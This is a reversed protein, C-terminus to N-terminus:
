VEKFNIDPYLVLLLKKKIKYVPTKFGKVDEVIEINNKDLYRFDAIYTCVKKGNIIFPFKPQLELNSIQHSNQLILLEVYRQAEKKSAFSHGNM